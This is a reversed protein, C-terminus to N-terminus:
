LSGLSYGYQEFWARHKEEIRKILEPDIIGAWTGHKGNTIHDKHLLNTNHYRENKKGDSGYNLQDIEKKINHGDADSIGLHKAIRILELEQNAMMAEYKMTHNAVATWKKHQNVLYDALEITPTLNFKRFASAMADRIDRYSYFIMQSKEVIEESYQHIKILMKRKVQIDDLDGIWGCSFDDYGKDSHLILLRLANYMWTSGSRPMGASLILCTCETM